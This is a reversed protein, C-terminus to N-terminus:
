PKPSRPMSRALTADNSRTYMLRDPSPPPRELLEFCAKLGGAAHRLRRGLKVLDAQRSVGTKEFLPRSPNKVTSDAVGFTAAVEPVGGVDVVALLVRLEAPTLRYLAGIAGPQSLNATSGQARLDSGGRHLRGRRPPTRGLDAATCM